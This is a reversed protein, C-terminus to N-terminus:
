VQARSESGAKQFYNMAEPANPDYSVASVSIKGALVTSSDTEFPSKEPDPSNNAWYYPRGKPDTGKDFDYGLPNTEVPVISFEAPGDLAATPININAVVRKPWDGSYLQKIISWALKSAKEFNM